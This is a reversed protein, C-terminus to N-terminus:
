LQEIYRVKTNWNLVSHFSFYKMLICIALFSNLVASLLQYRFLNRYVSFFFCLSLFPNSPHKHSWKSLNQRIYHFIDKTGELEDLKYRQLMECSVVLVFSKSHLWKVPFFFFLTFLSRLTSGTKLRNKLKNELVSLREEKLHAHFWLKIM